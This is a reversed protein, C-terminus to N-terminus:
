KKRPSRNIITDAEKMKEMMKEFREAADYMADIVTEGEGIKCVKPLVTGGKISNICERAITDAEETTSGLGGFYVGQFEIGTDKDISIKAYAVMFRESSMCEREDEQAESDM